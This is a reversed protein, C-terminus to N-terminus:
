VQAYFWKAFSSKLSSLDVLYAESRLTTFPAEIDIDFFLRKQLEAMSKLWFSFQEGKQKRSLKQLDTWRFIMQTSVQRSQFMRQYRRNTKIFLKQDTFKYRSPDRIEKLGTLEFDDSRSKRSSPIINHDVPKPLVIIEKGPDVVRWYRFLGSDAYTKIRIKPAAQAGPSRFVARLSIIRSRGAEVPKIETWQDTGNLRMWVMASKVDSSNKIELNLQAYEESFPPDMDLLKVEMLRLPYSTEYLNILGMFLMSIFIWRETNSNNFISYWLSCGLVGYM